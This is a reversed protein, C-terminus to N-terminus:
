QGQGNTESETKVIWLDLPNLPSIVFSLPAFAPDEKRLKYLKQRLFEPDDTEIAVGLRSHLAAYLLEILM